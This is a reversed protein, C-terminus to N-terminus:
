SWRWAVNWQGYPTPLKGGVSGVVTPWQGFNGGATSNAAMKRGIGPAQLPESQRNDNLAYVTFGTGPVINGALVRIPEVLHEDATHDTSAVPRIWADVVSGSVISAQGTVAVSTDSKGPFAGFDVVATGTAGGGGGGPPGTDGKPGPIMLPEEPEDADFGPPGPPGAAGAAGTTGPPGPIMLPEEPEDADM